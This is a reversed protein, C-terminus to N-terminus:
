GSGISFVVKGRWRRWEGNDRSKTASTKAEIEEWAMVRREIVSM